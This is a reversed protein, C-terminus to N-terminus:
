DAVVLKLSYGASIGTSVLYVGPPLGETDLAFLGEGSPTFEADVLRGAADFLAPSGAGPWSVVVRGLVPNPWAMPTMSPQGEGGIGGPTHNPFLDGWEIWQPSQGYSPSGPATFALGIRRDAPILIMTQVTGGAGPVPAFGVAAMLGWLRDLTMSPDAGISDSLLAYRDCAVPPYLVRHHNTLCLHQRPMEADDWSHRVASGALNNIEVVEGPEEPALAEPALLHICYSCSRNWNTLAAEVDLIDHKGSNDFDLASLGLAQAACIPVFAPEWKEIGYYNGMDLAACVGYENMGSLCGMFGAMGVSIWDNGIEPDLTFLVQHELLVSGTDIFYDLNRSMAPDGGLVPDAATADGWASTSSCSVFRNAMLDSLDPASAAVYVDLTDLDRGFVSSYLGCTDAMGALMGSAMKRFELPFQFHEEVFRRATEVGGTGGALEVLYVEYLDMIEPGLLYGEAYGMDGWSGWLNVVRVPGAYEISGNPQGLVAAFVLAAAATM